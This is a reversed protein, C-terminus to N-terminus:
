DRGERLSEWRAEAEDLAADLTCDAIEGELGESALRVRGYQSDKHEAVTREASASAALLRGVADVTEHWSTRLRSAAADVARTENVEAGECTLQDLSVGIIEAVAAAEGFRVMRHGAELRAITQQRWPWGRAAMAEALAAQSMGKRERHRRLNEAFRQEILEAPTGSDATSSPDADDDSV